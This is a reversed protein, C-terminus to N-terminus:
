FQKLLWLNWCNGQTSNYVFPTSQNFDSYWRKNNYICIHGFKGSSLEPKDNTWYILIDGNSIKNNNLLENITQNIMDFSENNGIEYPVYRLENQLKGRIMYRANVGSQYKSSDNEIGRLVKNTEKIESELPTTSKFIRAINWVYKACLGPRPTPRHIESLIKTLKNTKVTTNTANPITSIQTIRLPTGCTTQNINDTTEQLIQPNKVNPISLSELSTEWTNNQITHSVNKILFELEKDYNYPLFRQEITFAQFIKIGSIGDLTINLSIPIFGSLPSSSNTSYSQLQQKSLLYKNALQTNKSITDPNLTDSFSINKYEKELNKLNNKLNNITENRTNEKTNKPINLRDQLGKNWSLFAVQDEGIDENRAQAGIAIMNRVNNSITTKIGFNKVFSGKKNIEVGYLKFSTPEPVNTIQEIKSYFNRLKNYGPIQVEDIFIIENKEEDIKIQIKNVDGLARNIGDCIGQLFDRVSSKGDQNTGDLTKEIFDFNIYINMTKGAICGDKNFLIPEIVPGINESVICVTGDISKQDKQLYFLNSDVDTNIKLLNLQNQQLFINGGFSSQLWELFSGLHYYYQSPNEIWYKRITNLKGTNMDLSYGINNQDYPTPGTGEQTPDTPKGLIKKLNNLHLGIKTKNAEGTVETSQQNFLGLINKRDNESPYINTKLSEIIDGISTVNLTINYTGDNNFSWDFNTIRGLLADYNGNSDKRKKIIEKLVNDWNFPSKDPLVGETLNTALTTKNVTYSNNNTFYVSHGWELFIHFGLRLYLADIINFQEISHAMIQITAERLSGNNKHKIDVSILGPMPKYGMTASLDYSSNNITGTTKALGKKHSELGISEKGVGHWLIYQSALKGLGKYDETLGLKKIVNDGDTDGAIDVLSVLKAWATNSNSWILEENTRTSKSLKEQRIKIQEDVYTEFYEGLLKAM